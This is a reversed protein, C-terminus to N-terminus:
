LQVSPRQTLAQMGLNIWRDNDWWTQLADFVETYTQKAATSENKMHEWWAKLKPRGETPHWGFFTPLMFDYFPFNGWLCCDALSLTEGAAYPGKADLVHEIADFGIHMKQVENARDGELNKYMFPHHPGVYLDLLNAILRAKARAEATAPCFSPLKNDFEEALYECIISSEFIAHDEHGPKSVVLLPIKGLPNLKLYSETKIGGFDKPSRISVLTDSIDKRRILFRCRATYNSVPSGYLAIKTQPPATSATMTTINKFSRRQALQLRFGTFSSGSFALM